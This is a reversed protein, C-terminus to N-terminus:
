LFMRSEHFLGANANEGGAVNLKKSQQKKEKEGSILEYALSLDLCSRPNSCCASSCFIIPSIKSKKELRHANHVGDM